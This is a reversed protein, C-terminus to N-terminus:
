YIIMSVKNYQEQLSSDAGESGSGIAKGNCQWFTGSPDTYYRFILINLNLLHLFDLIFFSAFLVLMLLSLIADEKFCLLLVAFLMITEVEKSLPLCFICHM